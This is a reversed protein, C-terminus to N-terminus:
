GQVSFLRICPTTSPNGHTLPKIAAQRLGQTHTNRDGDYLRSVIVQDAISMLDKICVPVTIGAALKWSDQLPKPLRGKLIVQCVQCGSQSEEMFLLSM